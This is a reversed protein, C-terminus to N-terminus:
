RRSGWEVPSNGLYIIYGGTSRRTERCGAWDSDCFATIYPTQGSLVLKIHRTNYCYQILNTVGACAIKSAKNTYRALLSIDYAWDPRMCLM